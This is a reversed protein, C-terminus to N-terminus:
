TRCDGRQTTKINASYSKLTHQKLANEIVGIDASLSLEQEALQYHKNTRYFTLVLLPLVIVVIWAGEFIKSEITVLIAIFTCLCDFGNICARFYWSKISRRCQYWFRVLGAQCLTFALFVGISYIISHTRQYQCLVPYNICLCLDSTCYHWAIVLTKYSGQCFAM